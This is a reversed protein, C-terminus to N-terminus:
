TLVSTVANETMQGPNFTWGYGAALNEAYRYLIWPDDHVESTMLGVTVAVVAYGLLTARPTLRARARRGIEYVKPDLTSAHSMQAKGLRRDGSLRSTVPLTCADPTRTRRNRTSGGTAM